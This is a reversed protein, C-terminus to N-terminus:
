SEASRHKPASQCADPAGTREGCSLGAVAALSPCCRGLSGYLCVAWRDWRARMKPLVALCNTLDPKTAPNYQPMVLQTPMRLNYLCCRDNISLATPMGTLDVHRIIDARNSHAACTSGLLAVGIAMSLFHELVNILFCWIRSIVCMTQCLSLTLVNSLKFGLPLMARRDSRM